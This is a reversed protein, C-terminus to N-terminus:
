NGAKMLTGYALNDSINVIEKMSVTTRHLDMEGTHQSHTVKNHIPYIYCGCVVLSTILVGLSFSLVSSVASAIGALSLCAYAIRFSILLKMEIKMFLKIATNFKNLNNYNSCINM